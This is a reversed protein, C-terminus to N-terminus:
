KRRRLLYFATALALIIGAFLWRNSANNKVQSPEDEAVTTPPGDGIVPAQEVAPEPPTVAPPEPPKEQVAPQPPPTATGDDKPEDDATQPQKPNDAFVDPSDGMPVYPKRVYGPVPNGDADYGPFLPRECCIQEFQRKDWIKMKDRVLRTLQRITEPDELWGREGFSRREPSVGREFFVSIDEVYEREPKLHPTLLNYIEEFSLMGEEARAAHSAHGGGIISICGAGNPFFIADWLLPDYMLSSLSITQVKDLSPISMKVEEALAWSVLLTGVFLTIIKKM